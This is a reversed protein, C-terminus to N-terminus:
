STTPRVSVHAIHSSSGAIQTIENFKNHTRNQDLEFTGDGTADEKFNTWNGTPDFSWEQAFKLTGAVIGDKTANLDGRKFTKLQYIGDYTYLEDMHVGQGAAVPCERWLRNSARDYGHKVREADVSSGYDRWLLDIVRDFRDLGDFPDDGTGHALDMRLDPETYDVKAVMGLGLYTYEALHTGPSGSSDDALFSVRSLNADDGTNYGVHLFRGNPYTIKTRRIHNASGNAYTYAVKPTTGTNVPGSHSQYDNEVQGFDNYTFQVENVISGSGVTANDYSTAKELMGRVDYIRSLRRVAGDINTGLTTVRDQTMRGLKDFEFVHVTENQDKREKIEGLRNYKLEVRDYIGDAGNGLPSAVDDSDPYIVARLLGNHALDSGAATTVGYVYTTTQDGTTSNKAKRTAIQGDVNYTFEVTVDQDPTGTAPDGDVYNAISKTLRGAHDWESRDERAKPDITKFAEGRSNYETSDVLVTDSRAPITASRIFASGGNTGYNARAQGRGIADPYMAVYSVRAKPQAGSATTLEGTGTATHLRRRLTLQIVNSAADWSTETQEFITDGTVTAADAYSTEATDFGLFRKKERGLGDYQTKTFAEGVTGTSPNVAYRKTQYVRGLEDFFSESRAILYGAAAINKRDVRIVHGLNDYTNEQYFDVEGDVLTQRNRWDYGFSTVRTTSADIYETRKTQNGNGEDVDGDYEHQAVVVMNNGMTGGGTPDSETAGTDNTGVYTGVLQGRVDFVSRTITGVASKEMNQRGMSDYGYARETYNTGATGEGTSPILHYVRAATLEGEDNYVSKTWRLWSSQAFSDTALLRGSTSARTAVIQDTTSGARDLKTISAPNVLTCTNFGTGSAYGRASWVEHDTDKYVTWQAMRVATDTGAIDVNHQPGLVQTTRGFADVEYDSILHFGFGTATVWGSPEDIVQTTDLDAIAQIMAGKVIDYKHRTIAGREDKIWELNGYIDFVEERINSTGSGNQAIPIAPLTTTRKLIRV